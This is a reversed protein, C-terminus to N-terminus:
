KIYVNEQWVLYLRVAIRLQSKVTPSLKKFDTNKELINITNFSIKNNGTLGIVRKVRSSADNASKMTYKKEVVLWEKFNM